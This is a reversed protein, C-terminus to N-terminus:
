DDQTRGFLKDFATQLHQNVIKVILDAERRDICRIEITQKASTSSSIRVVSEDMIMATPAASQICGLQAVEREGLM